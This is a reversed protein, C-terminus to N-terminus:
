EEDIPPINYRQLLVPDPCDKICAGAQNITFTQEELKVIFIEQWGGNIRISQQQFIYDYILPIVENGDENIVGWKKGSKVIAFGAKHVTSHRNYVKDTIREGGSNYYLVSDGQITRWLGNDGLNIYDFVAPM